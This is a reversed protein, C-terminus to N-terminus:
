VSMAPRWRRLQQQQSNNGPADFCRSFLQNMEDQLSTLERVPEWRVLAM